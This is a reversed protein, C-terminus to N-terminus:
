HHCNRIPSLMLLNGHVREILVEGGSPAKQLVSGWCWQPHAGLTPKKPCARISRNLAMKLLQRHHVLLYPLSPSHSGISFALHCCWFSHILATRISSICYYYFFCLRNDQNDGRFQNRATDDDHIMSLLFRLIYFSEKEERREL